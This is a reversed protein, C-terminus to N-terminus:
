AVLARDMRDAERVGAEWATVQNTYWHELTVDDVTVAWRSNRCSIRLAHSRVTFCAGQPDVRQLRQASL